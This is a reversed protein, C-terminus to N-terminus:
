DCIIPTDADPLAGFWVVGYEKYIGIGIAKWAVQKWTGENIIIQNHGPSKKWGALGEEANAGATSFYSIEYGNSNYGSIERPKDWMCRAEKHDNTYCCATWNGKKSWSHLNCRKSDPNYNESLDKAHLQAVLTLKESLPIVPLGNEQRYAMVLDYLKKEEPQLCIAPYKKNGSSIFLLGILFISFPLSKM